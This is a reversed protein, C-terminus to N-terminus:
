INRSLLCLESLSGTDSHTAPDLTLIFFVMQVLKKVLKAANSQNQIPKQRAQLAAKM